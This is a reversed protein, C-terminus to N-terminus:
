SRSMLLSCVLMRFGICTILFRTPRRTRPANPQLPFSWTRFVCQSDRSPSITDRWPVHGATKIITDTLLLLNLLFLVNCQNKIVYMLALWALHCVCQTFIHCHNHLCRTYVLIYIVRTFLNTERKYECTCPRKCPENVRGNVRCPVRM